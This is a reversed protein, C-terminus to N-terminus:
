KNKTTKEVLKNFHLLALERSVYARSDYEIGFERNSVIGERSPYTKGFVPASKRIPIRWVEYCKGGYEGTLEYMVVKETRKYLRYGMDNKRFTEPLKKIDSM